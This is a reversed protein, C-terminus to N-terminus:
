SGRRLPEGPVIETFNEISTLPHGLYRGYFYQRFNSGGSYPARANCVSLCVSSLGVSSLLYRVNALFSLFGAGILLSHFDPLLLLLKTFPSSCYRGNWTSVERQTAYNKKGPFHRGRPWFYYHYHTTSPTCCSICIMFSSCWNIFNCFLFWCCTITTMAYTRCIASRYIIFRYALRIYASNHWYVRSCPLSCVCTRYRCSTACHKCLKHGVDAHRRWSHPVPLLGM